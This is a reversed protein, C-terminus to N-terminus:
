GPAPRSGFTKLVGLFSGMGSRAILGLLEAAAAEHTASPPVVCQYQYFGRPGYM